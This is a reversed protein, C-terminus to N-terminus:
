LLGGSGGRGKPSSTSPSTGEVEQGLRKMLSRSRERTQHDRGCGPRDHVGLGGWVCCVCWPDVSGPRHGGRLEWTQERAMDTM